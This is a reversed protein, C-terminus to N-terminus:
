PLLYIEAHSSHGADRKESPSMKRLKNAHQMEELAWEAEELSIGLDRSVEGIYAGRRIKKMFAIIKSEINELSDSGHKPATTMREAILSKLQKVSIKM